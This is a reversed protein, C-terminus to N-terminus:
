GSIGESGSKGLSDALQVDLRMREVLEPSLQKLEKPTFVYKPNDFKSM